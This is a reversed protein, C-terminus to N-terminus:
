SPIEENERHFIGDNSLIARDIDDIMCLDGDLFENATRLERPTLADRENNNLLGGGGGVYPTCMGYIGPLDYGASCIIANASM